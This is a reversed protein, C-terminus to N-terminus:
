YEGCGLDFSPNKFLFYQGTKIIFKNRIKTLRPEGYERIASLRGNNVPTKYVSINFILPVIWFPARMFLARKLPASMFLARILPSRMFPASYNMYELDLFCLLKLVHGQYCVKICCVSFITFISITPIFRQM